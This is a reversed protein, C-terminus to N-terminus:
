PNKTHSKVNLVLGCLCGSRAPALDPVTFLAIYKQPTRAAHPSGRPCGMGCLSLAGLRLHGAQVRTIASGM